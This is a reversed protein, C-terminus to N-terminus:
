CSVGDPFPTLVCLPRSSRRRAELLGPQRQFCCVGRTGLHRDQGTQLVPTLQPEQAGSVLPSCYVCPEGLSGPTGERSQARASDQECLM